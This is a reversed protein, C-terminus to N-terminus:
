GGPAALRTVAAWIRRIDRDTSLRHDGGKILELTVDDSELREALRLSNRWPVDADAMGHLLHVPCRIAVPARLVLHRRGDEILTRTVPYPPGGYASPEMWSGKEALAQRQDPTARALLLDDTFDPAAAIGVLGRVREPRALAVLLAVWGGMSSGVIILPGEALRDVIALADEAWGGITGDEFRGSSAGHGRYDFRTFARREAVCFRELATAKTGTMDSTFGSCFLVGPAGGPVHRYALREGSPLELVSLESM